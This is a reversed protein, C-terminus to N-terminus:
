GVRKAATRRVGEGLSAFRARQSNAELSLSLSPRMISSRSLRRAALASSGAPQRLPPTGGPTRPAPHNMADIKVKETM